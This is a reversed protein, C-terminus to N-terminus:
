LVAETLAAMIVDEYKDFVADNNKAPRGGCSIMPDHFMGDDFDAEVDLTKGMVIVQASMMM